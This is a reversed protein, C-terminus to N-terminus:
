VRKKGLNVKNFVNKALKDFTKSADRFNKKQEDTMNEEMKEDIYEIKEDKKNEETSTKLSALVASIDDNLIPDDMQELKKTNEDIHSKFTDLVDVSIDSIEHDKFFNPDKKLVDKIKETFADSFAQYQKIAIDRLDVSAKKNGAVEFAAKLFKIEGTAFFLYWVKDLLGANPNILLRSLVRTAELVYKRSQEDVYSPTLSRGHEMWAKGYRYIVALDWLEYLSGQENKLKTSTNLEQYNNWRPDLWFFQMRLVLNEHKKKYDM